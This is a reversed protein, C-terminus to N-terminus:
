LSSSISEWIVAKLDRSLDKTAYEPTQTFSGDGLDGEKSIGWVGTVDDRGAEGPLGPAQSGGCSLAVRAVGAVQTRMAALHPETSVWPRARGACDRRGLLKIRIISAPPESLAITGM